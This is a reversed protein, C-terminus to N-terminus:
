VGLSSTGSVLNADILDGSMFFRIVFTIWPLAWFSFFPIFFAIGGWLLPSIFQDGFKIATFVSLAHIFVGFFRAVNTFITGVFSMANQSPTTNSASEVPPASLKFREGDVLTQSTSGGNITYEVQLQKQQNPNPDPIGVQKYGVVLDISGDDSMLNQVANTVDTFNGSYGYQAKTIQLGSAVRAPPADIFAVENDKKSLTNKSGGNITYTINLTKLQGPAPDNVNLYGPSVVLNLVGDKISKTVAGSVDVTSSGAGYTASEIKLGTSM